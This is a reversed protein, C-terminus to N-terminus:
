REKLSFDLCSRKAARRARLALLVLETLFVLLDCRDFVAVAVEVPTSIETLSKCSIVTDAFAQDWWASACSPLVSKSNNFSNPMGFGNKSNSPISVSVLVSSPSTRSSEMLRAELTRVGSGGGKSCCGSTLTEDSSNMSSGVPVTGSGGGATGSNSVMVSFDCSVSDKDSRLSILMVGLMGTRRLTREPSASLVVSPGMMGTRRLTM